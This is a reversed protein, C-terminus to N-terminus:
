QTPVCVCSFCWGDGRWMQTKVGTCIAWVRATQRAMSGPGGAQLLTLPKHDKQELFV